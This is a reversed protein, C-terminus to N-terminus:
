PLAPDKVWKALAPISGAVEHNRTPNAEVVGHHSCGCIKEFQRKQKKWIYVWPHFHWIM